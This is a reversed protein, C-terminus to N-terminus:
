FRDMPLHIVGDTTVKTDSETETGLQTETEGESEAETGSSPASETGSGEATQDNVKETIASESQTSSEVSHSAANTESDQKEPIEESCASFLIIGMIFVLFMCVLRKM